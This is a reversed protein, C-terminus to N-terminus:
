IESDQSKCLVSGVRGGDSMQSGGKLIIINDERPHAAVMAVM